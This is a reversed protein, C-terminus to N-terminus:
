LSKCKVEQENSECVTVNHVTEEMLKRYEYASVLVRAVFLFWAAVAVIAVWMSIRYMM